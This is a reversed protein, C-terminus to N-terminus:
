TQGIHKEIPEYQWETEKIYTLEKRLETMRDTQIEDNAQKELKNLHFVFLHLKSNQFYLGNEVM